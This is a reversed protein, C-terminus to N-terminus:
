FYFIHSTVIGVKLLYLGYSALFCFMILRKQQRKIFMISEPFLSELVAGFHHTNSSTNQCRKVKPELIFYLEFLKTMFCSM